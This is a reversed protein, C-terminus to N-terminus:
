VPLTAAVLTQEEEEVCFSEVTLVRIEFLEVGDAGGIVTDDGVLVWGEGACPPDANVIVGSGAVWNAVGGRTVGFGDTVLGM